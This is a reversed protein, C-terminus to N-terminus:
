APVEKQEGVPLPVPIRIVDQPLGFLDWERGPEDLLFLTLPHGEGRLRELGAAIRRDWYGTIVLLQAGPDLRGSLRDLLHSFSEAATPRLRGLAEETWDLHVPSNGPPVSMGGVGQWSANSELGYSLGMGEAQRFLNAALRCSFDIMRSDAGIRHLEFFQFNLLLHITTHSTTEFQKVLWEDSRASAAWHIWRFPDGEQWPRVGSLRSPDEQYWRHIVKEGLIERLESILEAEELPRPRVLVSCGPDLQYLREELGIGDSTELRAPEWHYFGRRVCTVRFGAKVRQRPLLYTAWRLRESDRGKSRLVPPLPQEVAVWPLPLWSHNELEMEVTLSDGEWSTESPIQIRYSLKGDTWRRWLRSYVWISGVPLLMWWLLSM